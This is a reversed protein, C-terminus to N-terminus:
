RPPSAGCGCRRTPPTRPHRLFQHAAHAPRRHRVAAVSAGVRGSGAGAAQARHERDGWAVFLMPLAWPKAAAALGIAVAAAWPRRRNALLLGASMFSLALVDDLHGYHVALISWAPIVVLASVVWRRLWRGPALLALMWVDLAGLALMLAGALWSSMAPGAIGVIGSAVGLTLPGMQLEPHTAFLHIGGQGSSPTALLRGGTLFYHWSYMGDIRSVFAWVLAWTGVLTAWM